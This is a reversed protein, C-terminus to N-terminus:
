NNLIKILKTHNPNQYDFNNFVLYVPPGVEIYKKEYTFYDFLDSGIEM